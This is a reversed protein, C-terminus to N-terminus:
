LSHRQKQESLLYWFAETEENSISFHLIHCTNEAFSCSKNAKKQTNHTM